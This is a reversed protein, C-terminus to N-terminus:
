KIKSIRATQKISTSSNLKIDFEDQKLDFMLKMDIASESAFYNPIDYTMKGTGTGSVIINNLNESSVNATYVQNIDFYANKDVINTLKYITTISMDINLAGIPITIPSEQSFAEGVKLNKEPLALQSFSSKVIEFITNKSAEDLDKAVISDLKPLASISGKGYILTGNPIITNGKNDLSKIYEIVVPFNGEANTKGTKFVSEMNITSNTITPNKVGTSKLTNLFDESGEYTLEYSASNAMTQNYITQPSFRIKFDLTQNSQGYNLFTVSAFLFLYLKKM